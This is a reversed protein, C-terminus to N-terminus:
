QCSSCGLSMCDTVVPKLAPIEGIRAPDLKGGMADALLDFWGQLYEEGLGSGISVMQGEVAALQCGLECSSFCGSRLEIAARDLARVVEAPIALGKRVLDTRMATLVAWRAGYKSLAELENQTKEAATSPM